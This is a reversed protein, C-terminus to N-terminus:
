VMFFKSFAALTQLYEDGPTEELEFKLDRSVKGSLLPPTGGM